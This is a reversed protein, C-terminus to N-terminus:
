ALWVLAVGLSSLVFVSTAYLTSPSPWQHPEPFLGARGGLLESRSERLFYIRRRYARNLVLVFAVILAYVLSYASDLLYGEALSFGREGTILVLDAGLGATVVQFQRKRYFAVEEQLAALVTEDKLM